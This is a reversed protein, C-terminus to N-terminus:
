QGFTVITRGNQCTYSYSPTLFGTGSGSVAGPPCAIIRDTIEFGALLVLLAALAGAISAGTALGRNTAGRIARVLAAISVLGMVFLPLGVSFLALFGLVVLGGGSAGLLAIRWSGTSGTASLLACVALLGLYSAAFPVAWPMDSTGTQVFGVYWIYLVDVTAVVIAVIVGVRRLSASAKVM